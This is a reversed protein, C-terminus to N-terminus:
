QYLCSVVYFEEYTGFFIERSAYCILVCHWLSPSPCRVTKCRRKEANDMEMAVGNVPGAGVIRTEAVKLFAGRGTETKRLLKPYIDLYDGPAALSRGLEIRNHQVVTM